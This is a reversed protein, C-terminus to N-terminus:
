RQHREDQLGITITEVEFCEALVMGMRAGRAVALSKVIEASFYDGSTTGPNHQSKYANVAQTKAHLAEPTLEFYVYPRFGDTANIIEYCLHTTRSFAKKASQCVTRHDQHVDNQSPTIIIDPSIRQKVRYMEELIQQRFEPFLQGPIGESVILREKPVGLHKLALYQEELDRVEQINGSSDKRDQSLALVWVESKHELSKILGGCGLEVDDM